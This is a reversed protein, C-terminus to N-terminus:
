DAIDVASFIFIGTLPEPPGASRTRFDTAASLKSLSRVPFRRIGDSILACQLVHSHFTHQQSTCAHRNSLVLRPYTPTSPPSFSCLGPRWSGLLVPKESAEQSSDPSLQQIVKELKRNVHFAESVQSLCLCKQMILVLVSPWGPHFLTFCPVFALRGSATDMCIPLPRTFFHFLCPFLCHASLCQHCDYIQQGRCGLSPKVWIRYSHERTHARRLTYLLFKQWPEYLLLNLGDWISM